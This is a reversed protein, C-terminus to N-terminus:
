LGPVKNFFLNQCLHKGTFKAFNRLVGNKCFVKRRSRRNVDFAAIQCNWSIDLVSYSDKLLFANANGLINM